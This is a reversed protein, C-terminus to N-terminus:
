FSSYLLNKLEADRENTVSFFQAITKQFIVNDPKKTLWVM